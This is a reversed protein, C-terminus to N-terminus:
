RRYIAKLTGWSGPLAPTPAEIECFTLDDYGVNPDPFANFRLTVKVIGPGAVALLYNGFTGPQTTCADGNGLDVPGVMALNDQDVLANTADYASLQVLHNTGGFPFYDGYDFIRLSFCSVTRGPTFTFDYDLVCEADDAFGRAGNLCDNSVMAGAGYAVFPFANGEEIVAASGLPCSPTGAAWPLSTITLIPDVAGAGEVPTGPAFSEFSVHHFTGAVCAGPGCAQAHSLATFGVLAFLAALFGAVLRSRAPM